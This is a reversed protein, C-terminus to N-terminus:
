EYDQNTLEAERRDYPDEDSREHVKVLNFFEEILRDGVATPKLTHGADDLWCLRESATYEPRFITESIEEPKVDYSYRGRESPLLLLWKYTWITLRASDDIVNGFFQYWNIRASTRPTRIVM